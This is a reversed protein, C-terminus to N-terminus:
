TAADVVRRGIRQAEALLDANWRGRLGSLRSTIVVLDAGRDPLPTELGIAHYGTHGGDALARDLLERDFDMLVAPPLSAPVSGGCGLVVVSEVPGAEALARAIEDSVDLDRVQRRWDVVEGYYEEWPFLLTEAIVRVGVEVQPDRHKAHFIRMNNLLSPDLVAWDHETPTEIVWAERDLHFEVGDRYLRYALELDEAGWTVFSEDFGGVAWFDAATVSCNITFTLNWPVHRRQLDFDCKVLSEHRIDFFAPDDGFREVVEEPTGRHLLDVLEMMPEDPNYGYAYGLSVRRRDPSAHARLHHELFRASALAGTDLFVLVPATSMRAGANRATGARFGLDEQYHYSIRLVGAFEDVVAKTDDTSGDDTVVVEFDEPPISQRTLESLTRRLMGSRNYTPIVVSIRPPSGFRTM